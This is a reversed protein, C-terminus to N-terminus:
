THTRKIKYATRSESSRMKIVAAHNNETQPFPLTLQNPRENVTCTARNTLSGVCRLVKSM